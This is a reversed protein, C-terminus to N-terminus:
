RREMRYEISGSQPGTAKPDCRFLVKLTNGQMAFGGAPGKLESDGATIAPNASGMLLRWPFNAAVQITVERSEGPKLEISAPGSMHAVGEVKSHVRVEIAASVAAGVGGFLIALVWPTLPVLRSCRM